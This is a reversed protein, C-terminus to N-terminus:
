SVWVLQSGVSKLLCVQSSLGNKQEETLREFVGMLKESVGLHHIVLELPECIMTRVSPILRLCRHFLCLLPTWMKCACYAGSLRNFSELTLWMTAVNLPQSSLYDAMKQLNSPQTLLQYDM